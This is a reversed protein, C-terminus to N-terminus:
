AKWNIGSLHRTLTNHSSGGRGFGGFGISPDNIGSKNEAAKQQSQMQARMIIAEGVNRPQPPEVASGPQALADPAPTGTAAKHDARFHAFEPTALRSQVYSNVDRFDRTRVSFGTPTEDAVLEGGLIVELQSAAHPGLPQAALARGLEAAIALKGTKSKSDAIEAQHRRLVAETEGRAILARADAARAESERSAITAQAQAAVNQLNALVDAPVSIMESMPIAKQITATPIVPPETPPVPTVVPTPKPQQYLPM